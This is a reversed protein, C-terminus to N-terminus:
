QLNALLAEVRVTFVKVSIRTTASGVDSEPGARKNTKAKTEISDKTEASDEKVDFTMYLSRSLLYYIEARKIDFAILPEKNEASTM